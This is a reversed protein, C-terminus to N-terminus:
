NSRTLNSTLLISLAKKKKQYKHWRTNTRQHYQSDRPQQKEATAAENSVDTATSLQVKNHSETPHTPLTALSPVRSSGQKKIGRCHTQMIRRSLLPWCCYSTHVCLLSSVSKKREGFASVALFLNTPLEIFLTSNTVNERAKGEKRYTRRHVETEM